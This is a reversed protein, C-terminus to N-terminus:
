VLDEMTEVDRRCVFESESPIEEQAKIVVRMETRKQKQQTRRTEIGRKTRGDTPQNTMRDTLGWKVNEANKLTKLESSRGM